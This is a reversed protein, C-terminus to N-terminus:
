ERIEMRRLVEELAKEEVYTAREGADVRLRSEPLLERYFIRLQGGGGKGLVLFQNDLKLLTGNETRNGTLVLRVFQNPEYMPLTEQLKLTWEAILQDKLQLTSSRVAVPTAEPIATPEPTPTAGFVETWAVTPVPSPRATPETVPLPTPTPLPSPVPTPVPTPIPGQPDRLAESALANRLAREAERRAQRDSSLALLSLVLLAVVVLGLWIGGYTHRDPVALVDGIDAGCEPCPDAEAPVYVGCADCLRYTGPAPPNEGRDEHPDSM